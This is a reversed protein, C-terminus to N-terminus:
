MCVQVCVLTHSVHSIHSSHVCHTHSVHSVHSHICHYSGQKCAYTRAGLGLVLDIVCVCQSVSQSVCVCRRVSLLTHSVHSIHPVHAHVCHHSGRTKAHMRAHTNTYTQTHTRARKRAHKCLVLLFVCLPLHPAYSSPSRILLTSLRILLTAELGRM